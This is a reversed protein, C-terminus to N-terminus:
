KLFCSVIIQIETEESTCALRLTPVNHIQIVCVLSAQLVRRSRILPWPSSAPVPPSLLTGEEPFLPVSHRAAEKTVM